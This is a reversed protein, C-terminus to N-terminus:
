RSRTADNIAAVVLRLATMQDGWWLGMMRGFSADDLGHRVPHDDRIATWGRHTLVVMTGGASPRFEVEVETHEHPAFTANRWQLVLRHPPDWVSTRGIEVVREDAGRGFSEFLRGGVGPEIRVVGSEGPANRYRRGRRWWRDVEETFIAFATDPPVALGLTVRVQDGRPTEPNM